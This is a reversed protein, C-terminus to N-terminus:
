LTVSTPYLNCASKNYKKGIQALIPSKIIGDKHENPRTSTSNGNTTGHRQMATPQGYTQHRYLTRFRLRYGISLADTVCQEAQQPPILFVGYGLIPIQVGNSLQITEM